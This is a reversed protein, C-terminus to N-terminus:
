AYESDGKGLMHEILLLDREIEWESLSVIEEKPIGLMMLRLEIARKNLINRLVPHKTSM